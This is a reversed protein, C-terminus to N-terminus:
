IIRGDGYEEEIRDCASRITNVSVHYTAINMLKAIAIIVDDVSCDEDMEIKTEIDYMQSGVTGYDYKKGEYTMKIM